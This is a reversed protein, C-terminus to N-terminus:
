HNAILWNGGTRALLESSPAMTKLRTWCNPDDSVVLVRGPGLWLRAFGEESLFRGDSNGFRRGFALVGEDGRYLEVRRGTYYSLGAHREYRGELVLSGGAGLESRALAAIEVVSGYPEFIGFGREVTFLGVAMAAALCGFALGPRRRFWFWAAIASAAVVLGVVTELLPVLAEFGPVRYLELATAGGVAANATQAHEPFLNYFRGHELRPFLWAAPVLALSFAVLALWTARLRAGGQGASGAERDWLRGVVLALAPLAPLGYYELRSASVVFFGVICAAWVLVFLMGRDERALPRFGPWLRRLAAPLFLCWPAFWVLTLALYTGVPLSVFNQLARRGLFRAVHENLFYFGLFGPFRMAMLAHWPAALALFLGAGRGLALRGVRRWEGAVLVYGGVVLIPFVIGILGKSLTAGAMGAYAVPAAWRPPAEDLLLRAFGRFSWALLVLFLMEPMAMRGFVFYGFSTGLVAGAALGARRGWLDNGIGAVAAVGLVAALATALRAALATPGLLSIAAANLWDLLPPKELYAIGDLRPVAWRGSAAMERGIEGYVAEDLDYLGVRGLNFLYLGAAGLLLLAPARRVTVDNSKM